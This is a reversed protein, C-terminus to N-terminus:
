HSIPQIVGTSLTEEALTASTVTSIVQKRKGKKSTPIEDIQRVKVTAEGYFLKVMDNEIAAIANQDAGERLVCDLYVKGQTEQVLSWYLVTESHKTLASYGVDLLYGSNLM